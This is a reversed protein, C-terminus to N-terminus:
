AFIALETSKVRPFGQMAIKRFCRSFSPLSHHKCFIWLSSWAATHTCIKSRAQGSWCHSQRHGATSTYAACRLWCTLLSGPAEIGAAPDDRGGAATPFPRARPSAAFVPVESYNWPPTFILTVILLGGGLLEWQWGGARQPGGSIVDKKWMTGKPRLHSKEM